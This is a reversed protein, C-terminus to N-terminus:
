DVGHPQTRQEISAQLLPVLDQEDEPNPRSVSLRTSANRKAISRLEEKLGARKKAKLFSTLNGLTLSSLPVDYAPTKEPQSRTLVERQDATLQDASVLVLGLKELAKLLPYENTEYVKAAAEWGNGLDLKGAPEQDLWAKVLTRGRDVVDECVKVLRALQVADERTQPMALSLEGAEFRPRLPCTLQCYACLGSFPNAAMPQGANYRAVQEGKRQVLERIHDQMWAYDEARSYTTTRETKSRVFDWLWEIEEVMPFHAFVLAAYVIPEDDTVGVTSFGSKPDRLFATREQLMLLDLTGWAFARADAPPKGPERGLEHELPQFDRDVSLFLETGYIFDPDVTLEDREILSRADESLAHSELYAAKFDPDSGRSISLLHELYARRWAHFEVGSRTLFHDAQAVRDPQLYQGTFYHPCALAKAMSKSIGPAPTLTPRTTRPLVTLKGSM